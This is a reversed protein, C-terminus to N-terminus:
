TGIELTTALGILYAEYKATNNSYPFELKFSLAMVKDKWSVFSSGSRRIPHYFIWWIENGMVRQSRRGHSSGEPSWWGSPIRRRRSVAGVFRSYSPKKSNQANKSEPRIAVITVVVPINQWLSDTAAVFSQNCSVYDDAVGRLVLFLPTAKALCICYGSMSKKGKPISNRYRKPCSQHLLSTAWHWRWGRPCNICRHCAPQHSPLAVITEQPNPSACQPPEDYDVTAKQLGDITSRGM